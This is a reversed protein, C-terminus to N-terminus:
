AKVPDNKAEHLMGLLRMAKVSQPYQNTLIKLFVQAWDFQRLELAAYFFEEIMYM